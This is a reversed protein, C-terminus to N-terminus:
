RQGSTLQAICMAQNRDELRIAEELTVGSANQDLAEKTLRLGLPSKGAMTRAIKTAEPLVTDPDVVAQVFGIRLAEDAPMFDGTLLYRAANGTGIARPLLWSSGMDAGGVGLNIYAAQFRTSPTALRVDCAMAISFGGGVAAGNIAGVIPQPCRRMLLILESFTRQSEYAQKPSFPKGPNLLTPDRIDLGACFGKGAGTIVLVRTDLDRLKDEFFSRLEDRMVHNIANLSKPRNLTLVAIAGDQEIGLTEYPM